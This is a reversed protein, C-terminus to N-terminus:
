SGYGWVGATWLPSTVVHSSCAFSFWRRRGLHRRLNTSSCCRRSPHPSCTPSPLRRVRFPTRQFGLASGAGRVCPSSGRAYGICTVATASNELTSNSILTM